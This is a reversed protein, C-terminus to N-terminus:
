ECLDIDLYELIIDYSDFWLFDNVQTETMGYNESSRDNLIDTLLILISESAEHELITDLWEKGGSWAEFNRLEIEQKITITM